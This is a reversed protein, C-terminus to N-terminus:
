LKYRYMVTTTVDWSLTLSLNITIVKEVYGLCIQYCFHPYSTACPWIQQAGSENEEEVFPLFSM